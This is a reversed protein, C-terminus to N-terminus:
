MYYNILIDNWKTKTMKFYNCKYRKKNKMSIEMNKENQKRRKGNECIVVPCSFKCKCIYVKTFCFRLVCSILIFIYLHFNLTAFSIVNYVYLTFQSSM